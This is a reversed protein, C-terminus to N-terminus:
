QAADKSETESARVLMGRLIEARKTM